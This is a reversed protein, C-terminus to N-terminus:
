DSGHKDVLSRLYNISYRLIERKSLKCKLGAQKICNFIEDLRRIHVKLTPTAILVDDTFCLILNRVNKALNTLEQAMLRQFTDTVNCLGLPM